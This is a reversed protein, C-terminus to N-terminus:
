SLAAPLVVALAEILVDAADDLASWRQGRSLALFQRQQQVGATTVTAGGSLRLPGGRSLVVRWTLAVPVASSTGM